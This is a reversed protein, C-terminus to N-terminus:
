KNVRVEHDSSSDLTGKMLRIEVNPVDHVVKAIAEVFGEVWPVIVAGYSSWVHLEVSTPSAQELTQDTVVTPRSCIWQFCM